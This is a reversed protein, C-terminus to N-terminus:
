KIRLLSNLRDIDYNSGQSREDMMRRNLEAMLNDRDIRYQENM